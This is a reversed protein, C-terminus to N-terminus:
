YNRSVISRFLASSRAGVTMEGGVGLDSADEAGSPLTSTSLVDISGKMSLVTGVEGAREHGSCGPRLRVDKVSPGAEGFELASGPDGSSSSENVVLRSWKNSSVSM